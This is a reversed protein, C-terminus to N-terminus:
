TVSPILVNFSVMGAKTLPSTPNTGSYAKSLDVVSWGSESLFMDDRMMRYVADVYRYIKKELVERSSGRDIVKIGCGLATYDTEEQEFEIEPSVDTVYVFVCPTRNIRMLEDTEIEEWGSIIIDSISTDLTGIPDAALLITGISHTQEWESKIEM